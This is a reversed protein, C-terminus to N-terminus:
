CCSLWGSSPGAFTAVFAGVIGLATTVCSRVNAAISRTTAHSDWDLWV